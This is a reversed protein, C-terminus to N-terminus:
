PTRGTARRIMRRRQKWTLGGWIGCVQRHHRLAYRLCAFRVVCLQCIEVARAETDPQPHEATWMEPDHGRCAAHALWGMHLGALGHSPDLSAM